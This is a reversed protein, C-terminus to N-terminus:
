SKTPTLARQLELLDSLPLGSFVNVARNDAMNDPGVYGRAKGIKELIDAARQLGTVELRLDDRQRARGIAARSENYVQELEEFYREQTRIPASPLSRGAQSWARSTARTVRPAGRM